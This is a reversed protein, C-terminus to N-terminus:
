CFLRKFWEAFAMGAPSDIGFYKARIAMGFPLGPSEQWALWTHVGAKGVDKDPFRAGHEKANQTTERAYAWCEDRPPILGILFDELQGQDQNNPM